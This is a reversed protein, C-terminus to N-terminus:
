PLHFFQRATKTTVQLVEALTIGQMEAIREAVLRVRWPENPTGRYPPPSLFPTDTEIMLRDLPIARVVDVVEPRDTYTITATLSIHGDAACITAVDQISGQFCHVVFPRDPYSRIVDLALQYPNPGAPQDPAIRAARCHFIVPLDHAKALALFGAVVTTQTEITPGPQYFDFGIEGVARIGGQGVTLLQQFGKLVDDADPGALDSPINTPHLGVAPFLYRAYRGALQMARESDALNTGPMVIAQVGQDRCREIVPGVSADDLLNLHGHTDIM